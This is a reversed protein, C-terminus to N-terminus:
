PCSLGRRLHALDREMLSFFTVGGELEEKTPSAGPTLYYVSVGTERAIMEAFRRSSPEEYFVAPVKTERVLRIAERLARPTPEAEPSLGALSVQRLGYAREWYGFAAHGAILLLRYRCRSITERFRQDLALLRQAADQARHLFLDRHRPDLRALEEGLRRVFVADWRFDLWLHPDFGHDGHELSLLPAGESLLLVKLQEKPLAALLDELWPELGSGVALLMQARRLLLLDRPTPEWSHPDAGPPLLLHVEVEQGGLERALDYLPFISAMLIPRAARVPLVWLFFLVLAWLISRM